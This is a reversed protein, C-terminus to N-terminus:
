KDWLKGLLAKLEAESQFAFVLRGKGKSYELKIKKSFEKELHSLAKRAWFPASGGARKKGAKLGLRKVTWSRKLCRQAMKRQEGPSKFRLLERAQAFSIKKAEVLKQVEGDLQLLRLFNALSSRSRGLSKALAEQSLGSERMIKKFAKAEEIPSLGERQINEILGWIFAQHSDPQKVIAPIKHLGAWGAARWRREGAILRYAGRHEQVLVPQLVGNAKISECLEALSEKSFVARPQNKNPYIKEIDLLLIQSGKNSPGLLAELGRGLRSSKKETTRSTFTMKDRDGFAPAKGIM